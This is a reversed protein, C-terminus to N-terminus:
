PKVRSVEYFSKKAKGRQIGFSLSAYEVPTSKAAEHNL